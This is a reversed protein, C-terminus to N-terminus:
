AAWSSFHEFLVSISQVFNTVTIGTELIYQFEYNTIMHQWVNFVVHFNTKSFNSTKEFLHLQKTNCITTLTTM